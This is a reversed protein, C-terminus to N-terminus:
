QNSELLKDFLSDNKLVIILGIRLFFFSSIYAKEFSSALSQSKFLM